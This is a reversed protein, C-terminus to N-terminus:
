NGTNKPATWGRIGRLPEVSKVHLAGDKVWIAHTGNTSLDQPTITYQTGKCNKKETLILVDVAECEAGRYFTIGDIKWNCSEATCSSLLHTKPLESFRIMGELGFAKTWYQRAYRAHTRAPVVMGYTSDKIAFLKGREDLVLDPTRQLSYVIIGIVIPAIGLWRVQKNWICIWLGGMVIFLLAAAHMHPLNLTSFPLATTQNSIWVLGKIGFGMLQLPLYELGFPMALLALVGAPMILFSALPMAFMNAILGYVAYQGFHYFAFPATASGAVLSALAISSLHRWVKSLFHSFLPSAHNPDQFYACLGVVAAFSMQFSPSLISEPRLLLLLTAALAIPRMPTNTRDLIVAIFFLILMLFSREAPVPSGAILLYYFSAIIAAAAAWKKIPYHLVIFPFLAFFFRAGIFLISSALAMHLGSISLIHNLGSARLSVLTEESIRGVEGTILAAAIGDVSTGKEDELANHIRQTIRNRHAELLQSSQSAELVRPTNIAFGVAGIKEFYVMRAFDYGNPFVARPPPSLIVRVAIKDGPTLPPSEGRVTIRIKRPTKEPAFRWLNVDDLILRLGGDGRDELKTITGHAMVPYTKEALIIHEVSATRISAAGFGVLLFISGLLLTYLLLNHRVLFAIICLVIAMIIVVSLTAITPETALSFYYLIGAAIAVPSWLGLRSVDFLM